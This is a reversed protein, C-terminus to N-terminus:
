FFGTLWTELHVQRRASLLRRRQRQEEELLEVDHFHYVEMGHEYWRSDNSLFYFQSVNEPNPRPAPSTLESRSSRPGTLQGVRESEVDNDTLLHSRNLEFKLVKQLPWLMKKLDWKM